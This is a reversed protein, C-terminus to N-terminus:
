VGAGQCSSIGMVVFAIFVLFLLSGKTWDMSAPSVPPKYATIQELVMNMELQALRGVEQVSQAPARYFFNRGEQGTTVECDEIPVTYLGHVHVADETIGTVTKIDSTKREDDFVILLDRTAFEFEDEQVKKRFLGM